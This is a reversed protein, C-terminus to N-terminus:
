TNNSRFKLQQNEAHDQFTKFKTNYNLASSNDSFTQAINNAIDPLETIENGNVNLHHIENAPHKDAIKRVM